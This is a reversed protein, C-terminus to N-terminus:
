PAKIWALLDKQLAKVINTKSLALTRREAPDRVVDYLEAGGGGKEIRDFIEKNPIVLKMDGRMAALQFSNEARWEWFLTREPVKEQGRWVNLVNLGDVHWEPKPSSGAAALLSPFVDTMHIIENSVRRAPVEGPWRVIAPVRIGGEWLTRKHGRFPANSDHFAAAGRNGNEFTAGHDSSFVILTNKALGLDDLTKLLRGIEFDLRTIMAAYRANSPEKADEEPFKGRFKAVDEPPAEIKLHPEIYAQYLFFPQQKEKQEKLFQIARDTVLTASYGSVPKQERGFWLTKPFHQWADVADTYGFFQGFGHDMPHVYNTEGPRTAGHHWKGFLATSYGLPKLAEALTTESRPLDDNNGSVGDHITYKGTMLAARSPACVVGATYWRKFITGQRGLRDLNPTRWDKRGNFSVDGWGLDDALIIILNPREAGGVAVSGIVLLFVLRFVHGLSM